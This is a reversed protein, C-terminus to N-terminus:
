LESDEEAEHGILAHPSVITLTGFGQEWNVRNYGKIRDLQVIHKFNWSVIADARAVSAVAVHTADEWSGPGVVRAALHADRLADADPRVSGHEISASPLSALIERVHEPADKLENVVMDSVLVRIEGCRVRAFLRRSAYKFPEDFCGGIVSTDTYVRLSAM